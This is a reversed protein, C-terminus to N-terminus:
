TALKTTITLEPDRERRPAPRSNIIDYWLKGNKSKLKEVTRELDRIHADKDRRPIHDIVESM